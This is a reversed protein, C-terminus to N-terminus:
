MRCYGAFEGWGRQVYAYSSRRGIGHHELWPSDVLFGAPVAELLNKLKEHTQGSMPKTACIPQHSESYSDLM